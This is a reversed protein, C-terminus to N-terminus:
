LRHQFLNLLNEFVPTFKPQNQRVLKFKRWSGWHQASAKALKPKLDTGLQLAIVDFGNNQLTLITEDIQADVVQRFTQLEKKNKDLEKPQSSMLKNSPPVCVPLKLWCRNPKLINRIVRSLLHFPFISSRCSLWSWVPLFFSLRPSLRALLCHHMVCRISSFINHPLICIGCRKSVIIHVLDWFTFNILYILNVNKM